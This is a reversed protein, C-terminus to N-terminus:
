VMDSLNVCLVRHRSAHGVGGCYNPACVGGCVCRDPLRFVGTIIKSSRKQSGCM